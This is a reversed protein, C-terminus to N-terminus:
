KDPPAALGHALAYAAAQTRSTVGLKGLINSVHIEATREAIILAEAIARNTAGQAILALVQRERPTLTGLHDAGASSPQPAQGLVEAATQAPTTELLLREAEAIAEELTMARGAAWAAAFTAEDLQARAAGLDREYAARHVPRLPIGASERLSEAAGFLQAARAIQGAAGALGAISEFCEPIGQKDILEGFVTLSKAYYERAQAAHGQTYAVRGLELYVNAIDRRHGLERFSALSQAYHTQAQIDDGLAHAIRGLNTLAWARAFMDGLDSGIALAEQFYGRAQTVEANDFALDGLSQLAWMSMQTNEQAQFMTLSESLLSRAQAYAGQWVRARGLWLLAEATGASEDLSRYLALSEENLMISRAFEGQSVALMGAVRLAKARVAPAAVNPRDLMTDFWMRVESFHSHLQWFWSLAAALRLGIAEDDQASRSWALVARLNDHEAELQDIWAVQERGSLHPESAEALALFYDAHRRRLAEIEGSAALQELAYERITELRRFRPEGGPGEEQRVLSKDILSQLGDLVDLELDHDIDCVAAAAEITWGGVFVALRRFLRQEVPTLLNYSWDIAARMTQQRAPADRADGTLLKLTQDLRALLAQPPLLKVRAAALEIALPLGDLRQCIAAIAPANENTVVFDAKVAQARAIFLQVAAYQV